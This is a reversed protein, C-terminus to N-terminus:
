GGIIGAIRGCVEVLDVRDLLAGRRTERDFARGGLAARCAATARDVLAAASVDAPRPRLAGAAGLLCAATAPDRPALLDAHAELAAALDERDRDLHDLAPPVARRLAAAAAAHEGAAHRVVSCRLDVRATTRRDDGPEGALESAYRALALAAPVRGQGLRAMAQVTVAIAALRHHGGSRLLAAAREGRDAAVEARGCRLAVEALNYLSRGLEVDSTGYRRKAELAATLQREADRLRGDDLSLAGLNNLAGGILRLDGSQRAQALGARLQARGRRVDRRDVAVSGLLSHAAARAAHDSRPLRALADAGHREAEDLDGRLSALQGARVGVLPQGVAAKALMAQGEALRGTLEYYWFLALSTPPDFLEPGGAAARTIAARVNDADRGTVSAAQSNREAYWYRVQGLYRAAVAREVRAREPSAALMENALEAMADPLVYRSAGEDTIIRVLSIDVLETLAGLVWESDRDLAACVAEIDGLLGGGAFAGLWAFLTHAPLDVVDLSSDIAARLSRHREPLDRAGGTLV